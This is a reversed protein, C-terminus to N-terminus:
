KTIRNLLPIKKLIEKIRSQDQPIAAPMPATGPAAPIMPGAGPIIPMEPPTQPNAAPVAEETKEKKELGIILDEYQEKGFEELIMKQLTRKKTKWQALEEPNAPDPKDEAVFIRYLRLVDEKKKEPTDDPAPDIEVIADVQIEKDKQTFTKFDIEKGILRYEKDETLFESNLGILNNVIQTMAIELQRLLLSFRISTQMLLLEVKGQAEQASKPLGMAYESIALTTQIERRLVEDKDIWERSIDPPREVVADDAKDLLWVAGPEYKIDDAKLHSAKRIKRIPDLNFVIDDMAQNRSDAIELITTEVPEIHGIAWLEWPVSHDPLDIFLRGQNINLYPTEEYRILETQNAIVMLLDEEHDWIQILELKEEEMKEESTSGEEEGGKAVQGMKKTNIEYREKRPDDTIKKNAVKDLNEYLKNAGRKEEEEEIIEKRKYVLLSEHRSDNLSTAESDPYFLWLDPMSMFPDEGKWMLQIVGNGFILQSTVWDIKKDAFGMHDLDYKIKDDWSELSTSKLDKKFRPLIRVNMKAAALRPKVTEVIEFAIPPMLNTDYAYNTKDRFARYLKWMRLWKEQYPKRFDRDRKFKKVWKTVINKRQDETLSSLKTKVREEEKNEEGKEATEITAM